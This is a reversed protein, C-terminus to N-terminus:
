KEDVEKQLRCEDHVDLAEFLDDVAALILDLDGLDSGISPPRLEHTERAAGRGHHGEVAARWGGRCLLERGPQKACVSV